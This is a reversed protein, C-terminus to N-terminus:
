QLVMDSVTRMLDLLKIIQKKPRLGLGCETSVGFGKIVKAATDIRKKAGVEGDTFHVLGLFLQVQHSTFLSVISQLLAFYAADDRSRPVVMHVYTLPRHILGMVSKIIDTMKAM